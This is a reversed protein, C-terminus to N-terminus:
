TGTGRALRATRVFCKAGLRRISLYFGAFNANCSPKLLMVAYRTTVKDDRFHFAVLFSAFTM